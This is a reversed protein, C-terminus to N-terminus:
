EIVKELDENPRLRKEPIMVQKMITSPTSPLARVMAASMLHGFILFRVTAKM